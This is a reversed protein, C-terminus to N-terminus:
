VLDIRYFVSDVKMRPFSPPLAEADIRVFGRKEYFRHAARMEPRTGLRLTVLGAARAHGLLTSFLGEAVGHAAGRRDHRVFMKRLAAEHEGREVSGHDLLAITGVVADGERAVWFGGRGRGYWGPVDAIDPQDAVTIPVGFEGRQIGLIFDIVPQLDAPSWPDIVFPM